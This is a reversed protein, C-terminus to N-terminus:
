SDASRWSRPVAIAELPASTAMLPARVPRLGVSLRESDSM